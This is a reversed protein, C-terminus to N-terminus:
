FKKCKKAYIWLPVCTGYINSSYERDIYSGDRAYLIVKRPVVKLKEYLALCPFFERPTCECVDKWRARAHSKTNGGRIDLIRTPVRDSKEHFHYIPSRDNGNRLLNQASHNARLVRNSRFCNSTSPLHLWQVYIDCVYTEVSTIFYLYSIDGNNMDASKTVFLFSTISLIFEM